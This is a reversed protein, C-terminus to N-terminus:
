LHKGRRNSQRLKALLSEVISDLVFDISRKVLMPLIAVSYVQQQVQGCSFSIPAFESFPLARSLLSCERALFLSM